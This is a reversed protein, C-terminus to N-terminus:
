LLEDEDILGLILLVEEDEEEEDEDEEVSDIGLVDCVDCFINRTAQNVMETYGEACEELTEEDPIFPAVVDTCIRKAIVNMMANAVDVPISNSM